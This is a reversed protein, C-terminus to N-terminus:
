PRFYHRGPCVSRVGPDSSLTLPVRHSPLYSSLDTPCKVFIIDRGSCNALYGLMSRWNSRGPVVHNHPQVPNQFPTVFQPSSGRNGTRPSVVFIVRVAPRAAPSYSIFSTEVLHHWTGLCPGGTPGGPCSLITHGFRTQFTSSNHLKCSGGPGSFGRVSDPRPRFM